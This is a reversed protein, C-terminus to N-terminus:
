GNEGKGDNRGDLVDLLPNLLENIDEGEYFGHVILKRLTNLVGAVLNNMEIDENQSRNLNMFKFRRDLKKSNITELDSKTTAFDFNTTNQYFPIQTIDDYRIIMFQPSHKSVISEIFLTTYLNCYANRVKPALKDNEICLRCEEETFGLSHLILQVNEINGGKCLADFLRIQAALFLTRSQILLINGDLTEASQFCIAISASINGLSWSTHKTEPMCPAFDEINVWRGDKGGVSLSGLNSFTANSTANSHNLDKVLIQVMKSESSLRTKYISPQDTQLHKLILKDAIFKQHNKNASNECFCMLVLFEMLYSDKLEMTIDIFREFANAPIRKMLDQSDVVLKMLTQSAGSDPLQLHSRILSFNRFILWKNQRDNGLLFVYLFRYAFNVITKKAFSAWVIKENRTKIDKEYGFWKPSEVGELLLFITDVIGIEKLVSQHFPIPIGVRTSIELNDSLTCFLILASIVSVFLNEQDVETLYINATEPGPDTLSIALHRLPELFGIAFRTIQIIHPEVLSLCLANSLDFKDYKENFTIKSNPESILTPIFNEKNGSDFNEEDFKEDESIEEIYIEEFHLWTKSSHHFFRIYSHDHLLLSETGDFSHVSHLSFLSLDKSPLLRISNEIESLFIVPKKGEVHNVMKVHLYMGSSVSKLRCLEGSKMHTRHTENEACIEWFVRVDDLDVPRGAHYKYKKLFVHNKNNNGDVPKKWSAALYVERCIFKIPSNNYYKICCREFSYIRIFKSGLVPRKKEDTTRIGEETINITWQSAIESISTHSCVIKEIPDWFVNQKQVNDAEIHNFVSSRRHFEVKTPSTLNEDRITLHEENTQIASPCFLFGTKVCQILVADGSRVNDGLSYARYRPLIRFYANRSPFYDLSLLRQKPDNSLTESTICIFKSHYDSLLMVVQGYLIPRGISRIIEKQNNKHELDTVKMQELVKERRNELINISSGLIFRDPGEKWFQYQYDNGLFDQGRLKKIQTYSLQPLLKFAARNFNPVVLNHTNQMTLIRSGLSNSFLHGFGNTKLTITDGYCVHNRFKKHPKMFKHDTEYVQNPTQSKMSEASGFLDNSFPSYKGVLSQSKESGFSYLETM